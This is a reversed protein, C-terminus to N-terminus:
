RSRRWQFSCCCPQLMWAQSACPVSRWGFTVVIILRCAASTPSPRVIPEL